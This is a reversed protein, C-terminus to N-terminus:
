PHKLTPYKTSHAKLFKIDKKQPPPTANHRNQKQSIAIKQLKKLIFRKMAGYSISLKEKMQDKFISDSISSYM